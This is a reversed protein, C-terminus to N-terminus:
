RSLNLEARDEWQPRHVSIQHSTVRSGRICRHTARVLITAIKIRVYRCTMSHPQLWKTALRSALRKLTAKVEVGLFGDMSAVFPSFNMRQQFCVEPYIRKKVRDVEQLCKEPTKVSHTKADTNMVRMYHVSDTRNQWLDFILLNEKQETAEPPPAGDRDISGSNGVPKAKPRKVTCGAFILPNDRM